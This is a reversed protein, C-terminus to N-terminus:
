PHHEQSVISSITAPHTINKHSNKQLHQINTPQFDNHTPHIPKIINNQTKIYQIPPHPIESRNINHPTYLINYNHKFIM